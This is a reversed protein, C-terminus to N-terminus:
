PDRRWHLHLMAVHFGGESRLGVCVILTSFYSTQTSYMNRLIESRHWHTYHHWAQTPLGLLFTTHAATSIVAPCESQEPSRSLLLQAGNLPLLFFQQTYQKSFIRPFYVVITLARLFTNTVHRLNLRQRNHCGSLRTYCQVGLM